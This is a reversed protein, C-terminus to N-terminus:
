ASHLVGTAVLTYVAIFTAILAPCFPTAHEAVDDGEDRAGVFGPVAYTLLLNLAVAAIIWISLFYPGIMAAGAAVILIDAGGFGIEGTRWLVYYRTAIALGFGIAFSVLADIIPSVILNAVPFLIGTLLGLATLACVPLVPIAMHKLDEWVTYAALAAMVGLLAIQSIPMKIM